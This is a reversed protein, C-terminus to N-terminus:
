RHKYCSAGGKVTIVLLRIDVGTKETEILLFLVRRFQCLESFVTNGPLIWVTLRIVM